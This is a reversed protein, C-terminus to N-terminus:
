KCSKTKKGGELKKSFFSSTDQIETIKDQYTNQM